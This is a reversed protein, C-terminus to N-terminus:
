SIIKSVSNYLFAKAYALAKKILHFSVSLFGNKYKSMDNKITYKCGGISLVCEPHLTARDDRRTQSWSTAPEFGAV